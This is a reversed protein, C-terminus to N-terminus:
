ECPGWNDIVILLDSVDVISDFNVDAPTDTTGWYGIVILLDSVNVIGDINIDALCQCEDPVGDDNLDEASGDDVECGDPISNSNCDLATGDDIDCEDPILNGNCDFAFGQKIDWDDPISNSNCDLECSDIVGNSNLDQQIISSQYELYVTIRDNGCINACGSRPNFQMNVSNDKTVISNFFESDVVIDNGWQASGPCEINNTWVGVNTGDLYVDVEENSGNCDCIAQAKITITSSTPPIGNFTVSLPANHAFNYQSHSLNVANGWEYSDNVGNSNCDTFKGLPKDATAVSHASLVCVVLCTILKKM